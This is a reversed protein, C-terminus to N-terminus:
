KGDASASSPLLGLQALRSLNDWEVWIEAIKGDEIRFMALFKVAVRRGTPPLEGLPGTNTGTFTAYAAVTDDEAVMREYKVRGDPFPVHITREYRKFAERSSIEPFKTTAQSHRHIDETVLADLADWDEADIKAAFERVLKKNAELQDHAIPSCSAVLTALLLCSAMTVNRM